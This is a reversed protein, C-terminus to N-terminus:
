KDGCWHWAAYEFSHCVNIIKILSCHSCLTSPYPLTPPSPLSLPFPLPSPPLSAPFPFPAPYPPFSAPHPLSLKLKSLWQHRGCSNILISMIPSCHNLVPGGQCIRLMSFCSNPDPPTLGFCLQGDGGFSPPFRNEFKGGLTQFSAPSPSIEGAGRWIIPPSRDGGWVGSGGWFRGLGGMKGGWFLEFNEGAASEGWFNGDGGHWNSRDGGFIRPIQDINGGCVESLHSPFKGGMKFFWPPSIPYGGWMGGMKQPPHVVIGLLPSRTTRSRMQVVTPSPIARLAFFPVSITHETPPTDGSPRFNKSSTSLLVLYEAIKSYNPTLVCSPFGWPRRFFDDITASTDWRGLMRILYCCLAM